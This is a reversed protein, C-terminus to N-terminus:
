QILPLNICPNCEPVITSATVAFTANGCTSNHPDATPTTLTVTWTGTNNFINSDVTISNGVFSTGNHTWTLVGDYVNCNTSLTITCNGPSPTNPTKIIQFNNTKILEPLGFCYVTSSYFGSTTGKPAIWIMDYSDNATFKLVRNKWANPFGYGTVLSLNTECFIQQSNAPVAPLAYSNVNFNQYDSCKILYINVEGIPTNSFILPAIEWFRFLYNTGIQTPAIKQVIGSSLNNTGNNSFEIMTYNNAGFPVSIGLGTFALDPQGHSNSWNPVQDLGFPDSTSYPNVTTNFQNNLIFNCSSEILTPICPILTTTRNIKPFFQANFQQTTLPIRQAIGNFSAMLLIAIIIKSIKM